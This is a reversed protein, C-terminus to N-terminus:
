SQVGKGDQCAICLLEPWDRRVEDVTLATRHHHGYGGCTKCGVLADKAPLREISFRRDADFGVRVRNHGIECITIEVVTSDGDRDRIIFREFQHRSLVLM